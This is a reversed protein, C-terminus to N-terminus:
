VEVADEEDPGAFGEAERVDGFELVVVEDAVDGLRQQHIALSM